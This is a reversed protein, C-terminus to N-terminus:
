IIDQPLEDRVLDEQMVADKDTSEWASSDEPALQFVGTNALFGLKWPRGSELARSRTDAMRARVVDGSATIRADVMMTKIAPVALAAAIVMLAMVLMLEILTYAQRKTTKLMNM